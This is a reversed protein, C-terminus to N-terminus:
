ITQSLLTPYIFDIDYIVNNSGNRQYDGHIYGGNTLLVPVEALKNEKAAILTLLTLAIPDDIRVYRHQASEVFLGRHYHQKFLTKGVRWALNFLQQDQCHQALEIFALLLYPSAAPPEIALLTTHFPRQKLEVLNLRKLIVSILDFLEDDNSLRWARVLPLLYDPNLPCPKIECGKSGYYGDRPLIYGTMDQGDIWLPRLTNSKLDYAFRYYNKLGEIVWKEMEADPHQRLIDLMALPNDVLLPRMDRFLVNAERALYGFEAGFQRAARDGYWSQTQNDDAPIPQRQLPSSFQYAPLGTEPHRALVYQRYLHKGWAAAQDDGTFAAYKFAAYILDTGANVFTLGKTEPLQPWLAPDVVDHRPHAFVQPDRIKSYEGHRGLDLTKWDDVHAHWFGQIFNLTSERDIEALFDYYPLHHKLEHVLSKSAPGESSLTDLHFFHHGGWAFLGSATHIGHQLFYRTQIEARQRYQPDHTVQSLATLTRLWNQQSAFNSIPVRRGDAFQWCVPQHTVVDFGDALLPTPHIQSQGLTQVSDAHQRIATLWQKIDAESGKIDGAFHM